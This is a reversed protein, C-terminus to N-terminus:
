QPAPGAPSSAAENKDKESMHLKHPQTAYFSNLEIGKLIHKLSTLYSTHGDVIDSLDVNEIGHVDVAQLGALGQSMFNARYVVGLVWDNTSFGNVFRGAVVKRVSEWRTTDLNQPTGLLVVREVIGIGADGHKALEELCTFIVRAGLAFGTLTVPRHGQGGQLLAMALLKGAKESRDIAIQWRSDILDTAGLLQLPTSLASLLGGLVTYMAGRKIVEKTATTTLWDQVASSVAIVHESEWRLAYRELDDDPAEWPKVFDDPQFAIGSVVIEVALRGQQHNGGLTEFQFEDVDSMRRAMKMGTLRAGAAGFSAAVAASGVASGAVAAAATLGGAGLIPVASGIAAMGAAIAPAALGGTIALLTGGTVAAAGIIGGRKWKEWATEAVEEEHAHKEEKEKLAAMAMYTVMLEMAGINIWDMDFWLVLLRLAVRQRADYGAKVTIDGKSSGEVSTSATDGTVEHPDAVCAALLTYTVAVKREKSLAKAENLGWSDEENALQEMESRPEESGSSSIPVQEKKTSEVMADVAKALAAEDEALKQSEADDEALMKLFASIHDKAEHSVATSELGVWAKQDIGLYRFVHRLLGSKEHSWPLDGDSKSLSFAVEEPPDIVPPFGFGVESHQHLQAQSLALAFLGGAAYRHTSSLQATAAAM